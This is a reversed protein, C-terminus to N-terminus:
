RCPKFTVAKQETWTGNDTWVYIHTVISMIFIEGSMEITAVQRCVYSSDPKFKLITLIAKDTYKTKHPTESTIGSSPLKNIKYSRTLDKFFRLLLRPLADQHSDQLIKYSRPAFRLLVDQCSIKYTEQLAKCSTRIPIRRLDQLILPTKSGPIGACNRRGCYERSYVLFHPLLLKWFNAPLNNGTKSSHSSFDSGIRANTLNQLWSQSRPM